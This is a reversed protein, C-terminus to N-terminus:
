RRRASGHHHPGEGHHGLGRGRGLVRSPSQHPPTQDVDGGVSAIMSDTPHGPFPAKCSTKGSSTRRPSDGPYSPGGVPITPISGSEGPCPESKM